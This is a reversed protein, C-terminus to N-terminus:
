RRRTALGATSVKGISSSLGPSAGAHRNSAAAAQHGVAWVQEPLASSRQQVLDDPSVRHTNEVPGLFAHEYSSAGGGRARCTPTQGLAHLDDVLYM